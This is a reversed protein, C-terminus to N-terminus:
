SRAAAKDTWPAPLEAAPPATGGGARSKEVYELHQPELGPPIVATAADGYVAELPTRSRRPAERAGERARARRTLWLCGPDRYVM